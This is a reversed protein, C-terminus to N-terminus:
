FRMAYLKRFVRALKGTVERNVVIQGIHDRHDFGYYRTTLIRLQYPMVPCGPHWEGSAQLRHAQHRTLKAVGPQLTSTAATSTAAAVSMLAAILLIALVKM